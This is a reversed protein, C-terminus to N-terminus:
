KREGKTKEKKRNNHRKTEIFINFERVDLYVFMLLYTTVCFYFCDSNMLHRRQNKNEKESSQVHLFPVNENKEIKLLEEM